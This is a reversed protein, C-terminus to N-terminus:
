LNRNIRKLISHYLKSLSCRSKYIISDLLVKIQIYRIYIPSKLKKIEKDGDLDDVSRDISIFKQIVNNNKIFGWVDNFPMGFRFLGESVTIISEFVANNGIYRYIDKDRMRYYEMLRIRSIAVDFRTLTIKYMASSLNSRYLCFTKKTQIINKSESISKLIFEQDEGYKIDNPFHINNDIIIDRRIIFSGICIKLQDKLFRIELIEPSEVSHAIYHNEEQGIAYQGIILDYNSYLFDLDTIYCIDDSDLFYLYTGTARKIGNNRAISVGSNFQHIVSVRNDSQAIRDCLAGSGDTSGDDVLICELDIDQFKLISAVCADLYRISNYVPIIVSILPM